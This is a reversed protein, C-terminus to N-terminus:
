EEEPKHDDLYNNLVTRIFGNVSINHQDCYTKIKEYEELRVDLPIRKLNASKWKLKAKKQAETEPM